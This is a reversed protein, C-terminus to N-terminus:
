QSGPPGADKGALVIERLRSSPQLAEYRGDGLPVIVCSEALATRLQVPSLRAHHRTFRQVEDKALPKGADRIAEHILREERGLEVSERLGLGSRSRIRGNAVELDRHREVFAALDAETLAAYSARQRKLQLTAVDVPLNHHVALMRRVYRTLPSRGREAIWGGPLEVLEDMRGLISRLQVRGVEVIRQARLERVFDDAGILGAGLALRDFEAAIGDRVGQSEVGMRAPEVAASANGALGVRRAPLPQSSRKLPDVAGPEVSPGAAAKPLTARGGGPADFPLAM